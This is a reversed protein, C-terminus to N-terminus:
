ASFRREFPHVYRAQNARSPLANAPNQDTIGLRYCTHLVRSAVARRADRTTEPVPQGTNSRKAALAAARQHQDCVMEAGRRPPSSVLRALHKPTTDVTGHVIPGRRSAAAM